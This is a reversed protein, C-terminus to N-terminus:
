ARGFRRDLDERSIKIFTPRGHPCSYKDECQLLQDILHIAEEDNLRDGAMVAARCAISQAMAKLLDHGSRRLSVIDDLVRLLMKEPSKGSMMSPVAEINVMRGGFSSVIFGSHEFVETASEFLALQEPSLEVQVPFLLTQGLM